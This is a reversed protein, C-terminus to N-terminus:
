PARPWDCASTRAAGSSASTVVWQTTSGCYVVCRQGVGASRSLRGGIPGSAMAAGGEPAATLDAGACFADGTGRLVVVRVEHDDAVGDALEAIRRFMGYTLANKKEPRDITIIWVRGDRETRISM